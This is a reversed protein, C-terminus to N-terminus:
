HAHSATSKGAEAKAVFSGVAIYPVGAKLGDVIEVRKGDTRGVKVPQAVFGAGTKVFVVPKEEMTQVAESTVTVPADFSESKMEVNVFLGPRWATRPNELTVRAQATRTAEGILSGVYAVKGVASQEFAAARVTVNDGVRVLPLDKAPVSIQAWVTRLDAVTFVNADAGVQEGLAIHKEVITGDFPARLEFRNLAGSDLTAGVAQLKQRANAVAIEAERMAQEAVQVDQQPSIKEDYLRKEREYTTKALQLRKQAAQLDARQDSVSISSVVALVQGKRVVQGLSVPVSEVVGAVRPVVHATTDENFKVEGPLQYSATLTASKAQEVVIGSSKQQEATLAIVGESPSFPLSLTQGGVTVQIVGEFVHPEDVSQASVLADKQATFTLKQEDGGPRKILATAQVQSAAVDKSAQALWIKMRPTGQDESLLVELTVNGKSILEGGRTGKQAEEHHEGDGHDKADAHGQEGGAKAEGHHEGDGHGKGEEHAQSAEGGSKEGTAMLGIAAAAGIALVVAIAIAQKKGAGSRLREKLENKSTM